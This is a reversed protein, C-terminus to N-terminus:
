CFFELMGISNSEVERESDSVSSDLLAFMLMLEVGASDGLALVPASPPAILRKSAEDDGRVEAVPPPPM